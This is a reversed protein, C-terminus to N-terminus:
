RFYEAVNRIIQSPTFSSKAEFLSIGVTKAIKAQLKRYFYEEYVNVMMDGFQDALICRMYKELFHVEFKSFLDVESKLSCSTAADLLNNNKKM